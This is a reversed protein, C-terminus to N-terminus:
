KFLDSLWKMFQQCIEKDPSLYNKTISQGLPTGPNEQWALWTHIKAKSKHEYSYKNLKQKEIETLTEEVIPLLPDDESILFSIFDELMGKGINDPMLWVGAKQTGNDIILGEKPFNKPVNFGISRLTNYLSNWRAQLDTDADIIIGITDIGSQKFSASIYEKALLNKIGKCDVINFNETIHYKECLALVVHKDDNGEVLLQKNCQKTKNM